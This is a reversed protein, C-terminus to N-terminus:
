DSHVYMYLYVQITRETSLLTDMQEFILVVANWVLHLHSLMNFHYATYFLVVSIVSVSLIRRRTDVFDGLQSTLYNFLSFPSLFIALTLPVGSTELQELWEEIEHSRAKKFPFLVTGALLAWLLPHLFPELVFYVAVAIALLLAILGFVVGNYQAYLRAQDTADEVTSDGDQSSSQQRFSSLVRRITHTSNLALSAAKMVVSKRQGKRAYGDTDCRDSSTFTDEM